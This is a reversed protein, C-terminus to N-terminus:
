NKKKYVNLVVLNEKKLYKKGIRMIDYATVNRIRELHKEAFNLSGSLHFNEALLLSRKKLDRMNKKFDIEMLTKVMKVDSSSLTKTSLTNLEKRLVYKAKELDIRRVASIKIILANAEVYDTYEYNITVDLDDRQNVEREFKSIRKDVLYCRIFDFYLHDYSLKSPARIGYIAFPRPFNDILWNKYVYEERPNIANYSKKGTKKKNFSLGAFRKNITERVEPINFKGSIVMIIDNPNRFNDYIKKIKQNSFGKIEELSGYLPTQYPTGEFVKSKVWSEARFHINSNTLRYFRKYIKDKLNDINHNELRLSSIRESEIWLANNVETDPVVQWFVSRDYNVSCNGTGGYKKIFVIRDLPDLYQTGALMLTQYLYSAGKIEIPDDRVGTLQYLMVCTAEVNDLPALIIQLGNSLRFANLQSNVKM